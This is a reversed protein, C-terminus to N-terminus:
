TKEFYDFDISALTWFESIKGGALRYFYMVEVEDRRGTSIQTASYLFRIAFSDAEAVLNKIDYVPDTWHVRDRRLRNEIDALYITQGRHHGVFDERYFEMLKTYDFPRWVEDMLRMAFKRTEEASTVTQM